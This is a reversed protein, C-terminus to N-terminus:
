EADFAANMTTVRFGNSSRLPKEFETLPIKARIVGFNRWIPPPVTSGSAGGGIM